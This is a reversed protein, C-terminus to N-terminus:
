ARSTWSCGASFVPNLHLYKRQICDTFTEFFCLCSNHARVPHLFITKPHLFVTRVDRGLYCAGPGFPYIDDLSSFIYSPSKIFVRKQMLYATAIVM